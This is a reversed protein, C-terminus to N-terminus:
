YEKKLYIRKSIIYSISLIIILILPTIIKYYTVFFNIIEKSFHPKFGAKSILVVLMSLCFAGVFIGIRSKEIGFKYIVPYMISIIITIATICGLTITITEKLNFNSKYTKIILELTITLITTILIILLTTIYKSRVANIKGNPLTTIFADAHNYEDYSFTAMMLSMCLFAPIFSFSANGYIGMVGFIILFIILMKINSKITLIDKKILGIM